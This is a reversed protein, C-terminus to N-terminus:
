LAASNTQSALGFYIKKHFPSREHGIVARLIEDADTILLRPYRADAPLDFVLVTTYSEGPRLPQTLPTGTAHAQELARTGEPSTEYERGQADVVSVRRPNPSLPAYGRHTSITREDFWTKVKVVYFTGAANRQLPPTGVTKATQVDVLSYAVHCDVECFYKQEGPGLVKEQSALSATLLLLGYIGAEALAAALGYRMALRKGRVLGYVIVVGTLGLVLCTGLFTLIVLPAFQPMFQM